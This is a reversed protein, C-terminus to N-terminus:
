ECISGMQCKLAQLHGHEDPLRVLPESRFTPASRFNPYAADRDPWFIEHDMASDSKNIFTSKKM